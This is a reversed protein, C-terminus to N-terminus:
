RGSNPGNTSRRRGRQAHLRTMSALGYLHNEILCALYESTSQDNLRALMALDEKTEEAVHAKCEATRKGLPHSAGRDFDIREDEESM